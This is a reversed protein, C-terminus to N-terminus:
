DDTVSEVRAGHLDFGAHIIQRSPFDTHALLSDAGLRVPQLRSVLCTPVQRDRHLLSDHVVYDAQLVMRQHTEHGPPGGKPPSAPSYRLLSQICHRHSKGGGRDQCEHGYGWRPSGVVRDSPERHRPPIWARQGVMEIDTPEIAGEALAIEADVSGG